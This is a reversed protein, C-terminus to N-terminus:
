DIRPHTRDGELPKEDIAEGLVNFIRGLTVDGVPVRIPAGTDIVDMGRRIGDTSDMAITRVIQDGLHLSVELTLDISTKKSEEQIKLAHNIEPLVDEFKVDIVPGMVQVVIGKNM